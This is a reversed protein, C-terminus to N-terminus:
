QRGAVALPEGSKHTFHGDDSITYYDRKIEKSSVEKNDKFGEKQPDKEYEIKYDTLAIEGNANIMGVRYPDDDKIQGGVLLKDILKGTPSYSVLYYYPFNYGEIEKDNVAYVLTKYTEAAKVLGVSYFTSGVERSFEADRMEPVYREFDYPINRDDSLKEAYSKDLTVPLPLSKFERAFLTWQLKDPDGAGSLTETVARRFSYENTSRVYLLDPDKMINDVNGYGFEIASVLFYLSSDVQQNHSYACAKNYLVKSLPQYSLLEAMNYAGIAESYKGNDMLANGLEYYAKGQPRLLISSKFLAVSADAHKKNRYQDIAALFKKEAANVNGRSTAVAAKVSDPNYISNATLTVKEQTKNSGTEHCAAFLALSALLLLVRM